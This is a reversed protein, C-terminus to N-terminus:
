ENLDKGRTPKPPPVCRTWCKYSRPVNDEDLDEEIISILQWRTGMWAWWWGPANPEKLIPNKM